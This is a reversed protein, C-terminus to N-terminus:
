RLTQSVALILMAVLQIIVERHHAWGWVISQEGLAQVERSKLPLTRRVHLFFEFAFKLTFYVTHYFGVPLGVNLSYRFTLCQAPEPSFAFGRLDCDSPSIPASFHNM